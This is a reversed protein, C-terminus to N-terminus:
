SKRLVSLLAGLPYTNVIDNSTAWGRRAQSVGLTMYHMQDKQHADTDIIMKVGLTRAMQINQDNLDLRKPQSNIELVTKAAKATQLVKLFNIKYQERFKLIRGTPHAIINVLPNQIAKIIRETMEKEPLNLSSHVGAIVYDLKELASEPIDLSGNKLINAECGQLIVFKQGADRFKKNLKDIEKRQQALKQADLGHEIKLAITHDSIGLYQYGIGMAEQAMEEISNKGGNWETHCHLDGKILNLSVIKPLKGQLALEIEGRDERMEPPIFQMGLKQYIEKETRSAIAKKGAFLGYENLKLGKSQAIKRLAINHEKSGTFYQLAAGYSRRPIVRLDVHLNNELMVMAKTSGQAYVKVVEPFSIFYDIVAKPKESIVLFDADGITEKRRRISGCVDAREVAKQKRLKVLIEEVVPLIEGLLFRGQSKKLFRIGELINRESKEKFGPLERIKHEKAAKALDQLNRIGLKRYLKEAMKPGVGEIATLEEMKIPTKKKLKEYYRIRGSKLYEVIKKAISEGIGPMAVLAKIGGKKYIDDINEELGSLFIAARQYAYPKFPIEKAKLFNAIEYFIKAIEQNKM